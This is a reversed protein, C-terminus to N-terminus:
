CNILFLKRVASREIFLFTCSNYREYLNFVLKELFLINSSYKFLIENQLLANQISSAEFVKKQFFAFSKPIKSLEIILEIGFHGV